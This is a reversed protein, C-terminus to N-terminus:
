SKGGQVVTLGPAYRAAIEALRDAGPDQPESPCESSTTASGATRFLRRRSGEGGARSIPRRASRVRRWPRRACFILGPLRVAKSAIPIEDIDRRFAERVNYFHERLKDSLRAGKVKGPDYAEM